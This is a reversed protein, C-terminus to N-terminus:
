PTVTKKPRGRKAQLGLERRLERVREVSVGFEQALEKTSPDNGTQVRATLIVSQVQARLATGKWHRRENAEALPARAAEQYDTHEPDDWREAAKKGGRAGLTALAKRGSSTMRTRSTSRNGPDTVGATVYGRVRRAMTLRDRMPPMDAERHDAGVAQAIQYGREYADIIKADKLVENAQKM